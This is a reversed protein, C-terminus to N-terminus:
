FILCCHGAVFAANMKWDAWAVHLDDLCVGVNEADDADRGDAKEQGLAGGSFLLCLQDCYCGVDVALWIGRCQWVACVSDCPVPGDGCLASKPLCGM